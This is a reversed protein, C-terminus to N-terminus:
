SLLLFWMGLDGTHTQWHLLMATHGHFITHTEWLWNNPTWLWGCPLKRSLVVQSAYLHMQVTLGPATKWRPPGSTCQLWISSTQWSAAQWSAPTHLQGRRQRRGVMSRAKWQFSFPNLVPPHTTHHVGPKSQRLTEYLEGWVLLLVNCLKVQCLLIVTPHITALKQARLVHLSPSHSHKQVLNGKGSLWWSTDELVTQKLAVMALLSSSLHLQKPLPSNPDISVSRGLELVETPRQKYISLWNRFVFCGLTEKENSWLKIKAGTLGSDCGKLKLDKIKSIMPWLQIFNASPLHISCRKELRWRSSTFLSLLEPLSNSTYM